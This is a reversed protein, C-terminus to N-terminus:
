LRYVGIFDSRRSDTFMNRLEQMRGSLVVGEMPENTQSRVVHVREFRRAALSSLSTMFRIWHQDRANTPLAIQSQLFEMMQDPNQQFLEQMPSVNIQSERTMQLGIQILNSWASTDDELSPTLLTDIDLPPRMPYKVKTLRNLRMLELRTFKVKTFPNQANNSQRIYESLLYPDFEFVAVKAEDTEKQDNKYVHYFYPGKNTKKDYPEMSYFCEKNVINPLINARFQKRYKYRLWINVMKNYNNPTQLAPHSSHIRVQRPRRRSLEVIRLRRLRPEPVQSQLPRLPRTTRESPRSM